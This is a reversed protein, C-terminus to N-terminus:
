LYKAQRKLQRRHKRALRKEKRQQMRSEKSLELATQISNTYREATFNDPAFQLAIDGARKQESLPLFQSITLTKKSRLNKIVVLEHEPRIDILTPREFWCKDQFNRAERVILPILAAAPLPNLPFTQRYNSPTWSFFWLESHGPSSDRLYRSRGSIVSNYKFNYGWTLKDENGIAFKSNRTCKLQIQILKDPLEFGKRRKFMRGSFFRNLSFLDMKQVRDARSYINFISEFIPHNILHDTESQVPMGLLVLENVTIVPLTPENVAVSALNLLVNGGHSYGIIRIKPTIGQEKFRAVELGVATYLEKAAIYRSKQSLLGSWGFTYYHNDLVRDENAFSSMIEFVNAMAGSAYGKRIVNLDIKILGLEQMAQNQYFLPDKRMIEITDSYVSNQINDTMVRVFNSLTLHPKISMIGHVFVTIWTEPQQESTHIPNSLLLGLLAIQLYLLKLRNKM